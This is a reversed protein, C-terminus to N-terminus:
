LTTELLNCLQKFKKDGIYIMTTRDDYSAHKLLLEGIHPVLELDGRVQYLVKLFLDHSIWCINDSGWEHVTRTRTPM